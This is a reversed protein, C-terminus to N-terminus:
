QRRGNQWVERVLAVGPRYGLHLYSPADLAILDARAGATIRGIDNRQLAAAGGATAAWIAEEPSMHM